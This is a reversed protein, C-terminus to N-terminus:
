NRKKRTLQKCLLMFDEREFLFAMVLIVVLAVLATEAALVFWALYNVVQLRFGSAALCILGATLGDVVLRKVFRSIPWHLLHKANYVAMWTMQYGMAILTGAAVGVLGWFWTGVVSIVINLATAVIHCMSTQKYHGAALIPINYVSKLCSCTHALVILVAFVPQQYDTDAIGVTYVRVFPLILLGTCSFLFVVVFHLIKEMRGYFARLTDLDDKAWLEGVIAHLSSIASQYLQRISFIVMHYVSYVSVNELTSLVTLVINDTGDLVFATFHQAVGHWKQKIPEGQLSIKWDVRYHRNVYRRVAIPRVMFILASVLKVAQISAGVLILAVCCVTNLVLAIIQSTHQIYARQDANLLIRDVVGVYYQAFSSIGVALILAATYGWGFGTEIVTPYLVLLVAIYAVLIFAIRRFFREGSVMIGSIGSRDGEVLPRYLASQIVQGVGMDLLSVVGLFQTVSQVLGNVASGYEALILRPLILGCVATVVQLLIASVSNFMLKRKM